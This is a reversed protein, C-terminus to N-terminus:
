GFRGQTELLPLFPLDEEVVKTKKKSEKLMGIIAPVTRFIIVIDNWLSMTKYYKVDLIAMQRLTLKNKWKSAM